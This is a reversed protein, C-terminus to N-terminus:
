EALKLINAVLQDIQKKSLPKRDQPRTYGTSSANLGGFEVKRKDAEDFRHTPTTRSGPKGGFKELLKRYQDDRVDSMGAVDAPRDPSRRDSPPLGSIRSDTEDGSGPRKAERKGPLTRYSEERGTPGTFGGKPRELPNPTPGSPRSPGGGGKHADPGPNTLNGHKEVNSPRQPGAPPKGSPKSSGFGLGTMIMKGVSGAANIAAAGQPPMPMGGMVETPQKMFEGIAVQKDSPHLLSLDASTLEGSAILQKIEDPTFREGPM